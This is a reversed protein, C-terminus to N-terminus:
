SNKGLDSSRMRWTHLVPHTRRDQPFLSFCTPLWVAPLVRQGETCGSADPFVLYGLGLQPSCSPTHTTPTNPYTHPPLKTPHMHTHPHPHQLTNTPTISPTHITCHTHPTHIHNPSQLHTPHKHITPYTHTSHSAYTSRCDCRSVLMSFPAAEARINWVPALSCLFLQQHLSQRRKKAEWLILLDPM